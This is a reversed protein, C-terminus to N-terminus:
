GSTLAALMLVCPSTQSALQKEMASDMSRVYAALSVMHAILYAVGRQYPIRHNWVSQM